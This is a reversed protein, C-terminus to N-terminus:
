RDQSLAQFLSGSFLPCVCVCCCGCKAVEFPLEKKDMEMLQGAQDLEFYIVEGGGLSIVVQRENVSAHEIAKKGPTKWENIRKDARIHRIGQAHM